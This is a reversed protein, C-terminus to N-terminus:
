NAGSDLHLYHSYEEQLTQCYDWGLNARILDNNSNRGRVDLPGDIHIKQINKNAVKLATEVLENITPMEESGINVPGIFDSDM